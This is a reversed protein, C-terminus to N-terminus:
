DPTQYDDFAPIDHSARIRAAPGDVAVQGSGANTAGGANNHRQDSGPIFAIFYWATWRTTARVNHFDTAEINAAHV